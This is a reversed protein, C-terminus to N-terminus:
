FHQTLSIEAITNQHSRNLHKFSTKEFINDRVHTRLRDNIDNVSAIM